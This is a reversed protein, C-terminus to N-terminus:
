MRRRDAAHDFPRVPRGEGGFRLTLRQGKELGQIACRCRRDDVHVFVMQSTSLHACRARFGEIGIRSRARNVFRFDTREVIAEAPIGQSSFGRSRHPGPM